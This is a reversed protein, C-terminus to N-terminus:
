HNMEQSRQNQSREREKLFQQDAEEHM